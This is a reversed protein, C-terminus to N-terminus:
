SVPMSFDIFEQGGFIITQYGYKQGDPLTTEIIVKVEDIPNGFEDKVDFNVLAPLNLPIESRPTLSPYGFNVIEGTARVVGFRVLWASKGHLEGANCITNADPGDVCIDFRGFLEDLKATTLLGSNKLVTYLDSFTTIIEPNTPNLLPTTIIKWFSPISFKHPDILVGNKIEGPTDDVLDWLLSAIGYEEYHRLIRHTTTPDLPTRKGVTSNYQTELNSGGGLSEFSPASFPIHPDDTLMKDSIVASLWTAFGESWACSSDLQIYGKHCNTPDAVFRLVNAHPKNNRTVFSNEGGLRSEYEVYHGFEHFLTDIKYETKKADAFTSGSKGNNEPGRLNITPEPFNRFSSASKPTNKIDSFGVV